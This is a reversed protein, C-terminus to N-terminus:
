IGSVQSDMAGAGLLSEPEYPEAGYWTLYWM